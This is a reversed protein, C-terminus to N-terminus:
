GGSESGDADAVWIDDAYVFAIKGEAIAPTALLRTDSTDVALAAPASFRTTGLFLAASVFLLALRPLSMM